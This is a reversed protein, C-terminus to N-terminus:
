NKNIKSWEYIIKKSNNLKEYNKPDIELIAEFLLDGILIQAIKSSLPVLIHEDHIKRYRLYVDIDGLSEEENNSTIVITKINKKTAQNLIFKAENTQLNNSFIVILDNQKINALSPFFIHFESAFIVNKGIKLFNSALDISARHSAGSGHLYITSSENILKAAEVIKELLEENYTNDLAYKHSAAILKYNNFRDDESWSIPYKKSFNSLVRNISAIFERYDKYGYKRVFRSVNANSTNSNIALEQQSFDFFDGNFTNIFNLVQREKKTLPINDDLIPRLVKKTM